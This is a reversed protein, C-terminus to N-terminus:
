RFRDLWSRVFAEAEAFDDTLILEEAAFLRAYTGDGTFREFANWSAQVVADSLIRPRQRNRALCDALSTRLGCGLSHYGLARGAEIEVQFVPPKDGTTEFALHRGEQRWGPVRGWLELTVKARMERFERREREGHEAVALRLGTAQMQRELEVDAQVRQFDALPLRELLDSKGSGIPGFIWLALPAKM